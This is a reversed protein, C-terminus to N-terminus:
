KLTINSCRKKRLQLRLLLNLWFCFCLNYRFRNVTNGVVHFWCGPGRCNFEARQWPWHSLPSWRQTLLGRLDMAQGSPPSKRKVLPWLLCFWSLVIAAVLVAAFPLRCWSTLTIQMCCYWDVGWSYTEDWWSLERFRLTVDASSHNEPLLFHYKHIIIQLPLDRM